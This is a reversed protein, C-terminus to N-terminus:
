TERNYNYCMVGSMLPTEGQNNRADINAGREILLRVVENSGFYAARHLPTNGQADREDFNARRDLLRKVANYDGHAAAELLEGPRPEKDRPDPYSYPYPM